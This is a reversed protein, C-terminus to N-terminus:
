HHIDASHPVLNVASDRLRVGYSVSLYVLAVPEDKIDRRIIHTLPGSTLLAKLLKTLTTM